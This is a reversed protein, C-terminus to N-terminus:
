VKSAADDADIHAVSRASLIPVIRHAGLETAKQVILEMMKGKTMAQLLAVAYSLPEFTHNQVVKLTVARRGAEQVECLLEEGAGNLVAVREGARIRLVNLAHHAERESLTLPQRLCEAPPLYFRHMAFHPPAISRRSTAVMPM